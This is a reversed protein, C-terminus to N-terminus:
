APRKRPRDHAPNIKLEVRIAHYRRQDINEVSHPGEPEMWRVRVGSASPSHAQSEFLLADGQYCRIRASEDVIM